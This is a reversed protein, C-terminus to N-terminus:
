LRIVSSDWLKSQPKWMPTTSSETRIYSANDHGLLVSGEMKCDTMLM